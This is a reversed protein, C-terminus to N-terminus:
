QLFWGLSHDGLVRFLTVARAQSTPPRCQKPFSPHHRSNFAAAWIRFPCARNMSVRTVRSFSGGGKVCNGHPHDISGKPSATYVPALSYIQVPREVQGSTGEKGRLKLGTNIQHRGDRLVFVSECGAGQVSHVQVLGINVEYLHVRDCNVTM